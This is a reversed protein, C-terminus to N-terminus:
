DGVHSAKDFVKDIRVNITLNLRLFKSESVIQMSSVGIGFVDPHIFDAGVHRGLGDAFLLNGIDADINGLRFGIGATETLGLFFAATQEAAATEHAADFVQNGGTFLSDIGDFLNLVRNVGDLASNILDLGGSLIDAVGGLHDALAIQFIGKGGKALDSM